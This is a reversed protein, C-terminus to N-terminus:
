GVPAPRLTPPTVDFGVLAEVVEAVALLDFDAFAHGVLQFGIPVGDVTTAIPLSLAPHGTYNFPSTNRILQATLSPDAAIDAQRPAPIPLTPMALVDFGSFAERVAEILLRRARGSRIYDQALVSRAAFLRARLDPGYLEPRERLLPEHYVYSEALLTLRSGLVLQHIDLEVRETVAGADAMEDLVARCAADVEPDLDAWFYPEPVGVRLGRLDDRPAAPPAVRSSSHVDREDHGAMVELMVRADAVTLTHPGIHDVHQTTTPMGGRLSVLGHTQKLGVGGCCCAPIRVSGAADTGLSAFGIRLAVAAASAGSSGGPIRGLQWPNGVWGYHPNMSTGGMAMEHLNVKGLVIAGAAKLREVVAADETPVRDALVRSGATAPVGAVDVNDKVTIPVGHLPGLPAGAAVAADAEAAAALAADDMRTIFLHHSADFDDARALAAETLATATVEGAAVADRAGILRLELLDDDSM